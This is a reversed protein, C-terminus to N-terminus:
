RIFYDKGGASTAPIVGRRVDHWVVTYPIALRRALETAPGGLPQTVDERISYGLSRLRSCVSNRDRGLRLCIEPLTVHGVLACLQAAEARTWARPGPRYRRRVLWRAREFDSPRHLKLKPM